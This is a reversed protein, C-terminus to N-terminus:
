EQSEEEAAEGEAGEEAGEVGEEGEEGELEEDLEVTEKVLKPAIVSAVTRQAATVWELGEFSLDELHISDGIELESVDVEINDPIDKPLCRVDVDMMQQQLIGGDVTVGVPNGLLEISVNAELKVGRTIGMLDAHIPIRKIPDFQIDRFMCEKTKEEGKGWSVKFLPPKKSIIADLDKKAFQLSVPEEGSKYFVGPILGEIRLRKVDAKGKADRITANLTMMEAM